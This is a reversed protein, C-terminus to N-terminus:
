LDSLKPTIYKAKEARTGGSCCIFLENGLCSPEM